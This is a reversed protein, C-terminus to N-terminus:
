GKEKHCHNLKDWINAASTAHLVSSLPGDKLTLILQAQAEMDHHNWDDIDLQNTSKDAIQILIPCKTTGDVTRSTQPCHLDPVGM